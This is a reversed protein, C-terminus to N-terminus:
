YETKLSRDRDTQGRERAGMERGDDTQREGIVGGGGGEREGVELGQTDM